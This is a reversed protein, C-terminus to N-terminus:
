CPTSHVSHDDLTRWVRALTPAKKEGQSSTEPNFVTSRSIKM